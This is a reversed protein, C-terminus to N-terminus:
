SAPSSLASARCAHARAHTRVHAHAHVHAHTRTCTHYTHKLVYGIGQGISMIVPTTQTHHPHPHPHLALTLTLALALTLALSLTLALVKHQSANSRKPSFTSRTMRWWCQRGGGELREFAYAGCEQFQFKAMRRRHRAGCQREGSTVVAGSRDEDVDSVGSAYAVLEAINEPTRAGSPFLLMPPPDEPDICQDDIRDMRERMKHYNLQVISGDDAVASDWAVALAGDRLRRELM